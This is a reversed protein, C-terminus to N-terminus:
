KNIAYEKVQQNVLNKLAPYREIQNVIMQASKLINVFVDMTLYKGDVHNKYIKMMNREGRIGNILFEHMRPVIGFKDILYNTEDFDQNDIVKNGGDLWGDITEARRNYYGVKRRREFETLMLDLIESSAYKNKTTVMRTNDILTNITNLMNLVQKVRDKSVPIMIRSSYDNIKVLNM